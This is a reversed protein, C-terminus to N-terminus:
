GFASEKIRQGKVKGRQGKVKLRKRRAELRFSPKEGQGM